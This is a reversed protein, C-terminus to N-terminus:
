HMHEANIAPLLRPEGKALLGHKNWFRIVLLLWAGFAGFAVLLEPGIFSVYSNPNMAPIVLWAWDLWNGVLVLVAIITLAKPNTRVKQSMLGLFPLPWRLLADFIFWWGYGHQTRMVYFYTEEDLNAYYILMYQSFGIYACFCSWAVMWTGLDHITHEGLHHKLQGRRFHLVFLLLVCLFVQIMSTLCYVAWMTSFWNVQLTLIFDWIFFTFSIAFVMLFTIALPMSKSRICGPEADQKTSAGIFLRQLVVWSALFIINVIWFREWTMYSSKGGAKSHFLHEHDYGTLYAWDYLWGAGLFIIAVAMVIAVPLGATFSEILRRVPMIWTANGVTHVSLYFFAGLSLYLPVLMGMLLSYWFREQGGAAFSWGVGILGAVVAAIAIKQFGGAQVPGPDELRTM